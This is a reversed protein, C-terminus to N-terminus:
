KEAKKSVTYTHILYTPGRRTEVEVIWGWKNFEPIPRKGIIKATGRGNGAWTGMHDALRRQIVKEDNEVIDFVVGNFELQVPDNMM